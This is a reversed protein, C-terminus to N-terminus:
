PTTPRAETTIDLRIQDAMVAQYGFRQVLDLLLEAAVIEIGPGGSIVATITLHHLSVDKSAHPAVSM